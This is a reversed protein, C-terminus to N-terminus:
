IILYTFIVYLIAIPIMKEDDVGDVGDVGDPGDPGDVGDAGDPGDPGDVGDVGDVGDPGDPGDLTVDNPNVCVIDCGNIFVGTSFTAITDDTNFSGAVTLGFLM